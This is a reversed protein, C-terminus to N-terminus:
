KGRRVKEAIMGRLGAILKPRDPNTGQAKVHAKEEILRLAEWAIKRTSGGADVFTNTLVDLVGFATGPRKTIERTNNGFSRVVYRPSKGKSHKYMTRNKIKM